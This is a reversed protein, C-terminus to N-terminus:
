EEELVEYSNNSLECSYIKDGVKIRYKGAYFFSPEKTHKISLSAYTGHVQNEISKVADDYTYKPLSFVFVTIVLLFITYLFMTMRPRYIKQKLGHYIPLILAFSLSPLNIKMVSGYITVNLYTFVGAFGIILVFMLIFSMKVYKKEM